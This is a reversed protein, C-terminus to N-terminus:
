FIIFNKKKKKKVIAKHFTVQFNFERALRSFTKCQSLAIENNENLFGYVVGIQHHFPECIEHLKFLTKLM